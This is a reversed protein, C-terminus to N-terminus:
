LLMHAYNGMVAWAYVRAGSEEANSGARRVLEKREKGDRVVKV